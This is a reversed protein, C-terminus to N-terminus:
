SLLAALDYGCLFELYELVKCTYFQICIAFHAVYGVGWILIVGTKWINEDM